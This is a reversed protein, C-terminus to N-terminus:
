AEEGRAKKRRLFFPYKVSGKTRGPPLLDFLEKRKIQDILTLIKYSEYLGMGYYFNTVNDMLWILLKNYDRTSLDRGGVGRGRLINEVLEFDDDKDYGESGFLITNISARIDKSIKDYKVSRPNLGESKVIKKVRGLVDQIRPEYFRIKTCSNAVGEPIKWIENATMIVPHKSKKVIQELKKKDEVGDAEDFLFVLKRFGKMQCRRLLDDMEEARREDSANTEVVSYGLKRAVLYVASTKGIGPSGYLVACSGFKIIEELRKLAKENGIFDEEKIPRYKETIM